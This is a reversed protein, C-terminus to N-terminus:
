GSSEAPLFQDIADLTHAAYISGPGGAMLVAVGVTELLEDRTAGAQIADHAHYAICGDCHVVISIALAMLEKVKGPLAGDEVAKRHLRAFGGMPGPLERGLQGLRKELHQQYNVYDTSM